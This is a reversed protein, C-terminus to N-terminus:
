LPMILIDKIYGNSELRTCVLNRATISSNLTCSENGLKATWVNNEVTIEVEYWNNLSLSGSINSVNGSPNWDWLRYKLGNFGYGMLVGDSTSSGVQMYTGIGSGTQVKFKYTM